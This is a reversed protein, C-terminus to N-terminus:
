EVVDWGTVVQHISWVTYSVLKSYGLISCLHFIQLVRVIVNTTNKMVNHWKINDIWQTWYSQIFHKSLLIKNGIRQVQSMCNWLVVSIWMWFIQGQTLASSDHCAIHVSIWNKTHGGRANYLASEICAWYSPQSSRIQFIEGSTWLLRLWNLWLQQPTTWTIWGVHSKRGSTRSWIWIRHCLQGIWIRCM